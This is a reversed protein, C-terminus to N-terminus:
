SAPVAIKQGVLIHRPDKIDPNAKMLEDITTKCRRAIAVLTDGSEVEISGDCAGPSGGEAPAVASRAGLTVAPVAPPIVGSGAGVGAAQGRDAQGGGAAAVRPLDAVAAALGASLEELGRRSAELREGLARPEARAADLEAQLRAIIAGDEARAADLAAIRNQTAALLQRVAVAEAAIEKEFQALRQTATMVTQTLEATAGARQSLQQVRVTLEDLTAKLDVDPATPGPGTRPAVAPPAETEALAATHLLGLLAPLTILLALRRRM